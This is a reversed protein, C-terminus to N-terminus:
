RSSVSTVLILVIAWNGHRPAERADLQPGYTFV